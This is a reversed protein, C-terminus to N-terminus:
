NKFVSAEAEVNEARFIVRMNARWEQESEPKCSATIHGQGDFACKKAPHNIGDGVVVFQSPDLTVGQSQAYAILSSRVANARMFSLNKGAQEISRLM